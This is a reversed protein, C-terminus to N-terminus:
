PRRPGRGPRQGRVHPQVTFTETQPSFVFSFNQSGDSLSLTISGNLNNVLSQSVLNDPINVGNRELHRVLRKLNHLDLVKVDKGDVSTVYVTRSPM